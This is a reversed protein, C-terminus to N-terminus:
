SRRGPGRVVRERVAALEQLDIGLGEGWARIAAVGSESEATQQAGEGDGELQEVYAVADALQLVRALTPAEAASEPEHHAGIGDVLLSPLQWRELLWAGVEEHRLAFISEEVERAPDGTTTQIEVVDAYREPFEHEIVIKGIDHLLGAVFSDPVEAQPRSKAGIARALQAVLISHEWLQERVAPDGKANDWMGMVAAAMALSQVEDFGLMTIAHSVSTLQRHFGYYAANVLRLLKATLGPDRCILASLDDASTNPDLLLENIESVIAPFTPLDRIQRLHAWTLERTTNIPQPPATLSPNSLRAM